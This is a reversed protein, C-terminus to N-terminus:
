FMLISQQTLFIIGQNWYFAITFSQVAQKNRISM